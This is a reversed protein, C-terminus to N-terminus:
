KWIAIWKYTTNARFSSSVSGGVEGPKFGTPTVYYRPYNYNTDTTDDSSFRLENSRERYSGSAMYYMYTAVYGPPTTGTQIKMTAGFWKEYDIYHWFGLGSSTPRENSADIITVYIPMSTHIKSFSITPRTTEETPTYTGTEYELGLPINVNVKSYGDANDSSANYEGNETISKEILTAGVYELTKGLDGILVNNAEIM